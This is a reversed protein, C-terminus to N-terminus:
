LMIELEIEDRVPIGNRTLPIAPKLKRVPAISNRYLECIQFGRKQYFALAAMNDNSTVVRLRKRGERRAAEITAALLAGGIGIREYASDLTVIEADEADDRWTILGVCDRRENHAAFAKVKEPEFVRGRIMIFPGFWHTRWWQGIIESHEVVDISLLPQRSSKV